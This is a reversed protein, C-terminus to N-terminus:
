RKPWQLVLQFHNVQGLRTGPTARDRASIGDEAAAWHRAVPPMHAGQTGAQAGPPAQRPPLPARPRNPLRPACNPRKPRAAADAVM